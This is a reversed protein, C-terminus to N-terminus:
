QRRKLTQAVLKGAMVRGFIAAGALSMAVLLWGALDPSWAPSAFSYTFLAKDPFELAQPEQGPRANELVYDQVCAARVSLLVSPDECVKQAQRYIGGDASAKAKDIVTQAARDYSYALQIPENLTTNMHNAVYNGLDRLAKDIEGDDKDAAVVDLIHPELNQSNNRLAWVSLSFLVVLLVALHWTKISEIKKWYHHLRRKNM